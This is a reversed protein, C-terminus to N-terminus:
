LKIYNQGGINKILGKIELQILSAGVASADLTSNEVIKDIHFPSASLLQYLTKEEPSLLNLDMAPAKAATQEDIFINLSELIDEASTLLKAGNVLLRNAGGATPSNINQPLALVERNQEAACGATILAGSKASAEAVM